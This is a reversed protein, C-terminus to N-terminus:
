PSLMLLHCQSWQHFLLPDERVLLNEPPIRGCPHGRVTGLVARGSHAKVQPGAVWRSARMQM